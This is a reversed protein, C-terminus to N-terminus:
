KIMVKEYRNGAIFKIEGDWPVTFKMIRVETVSGTSIDNVIIKGPILRNGKGTFDSFVFEWGKFGSSKELRTLVAKQEKCNIFYDVKLGQINDTVNILGGRCETRIELIKESVIFDGLLLPLIDLNFGYKREVAKRGGFYTIRNIRDNILASDKSIFIRAAEIGGSGRLSILYKQPTLFKVSALMKKTGERDTVKIEAKEIFFGSNTINADLVTGLVDENFGKEAAV